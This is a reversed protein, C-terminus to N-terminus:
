RNLNVSCACKFFIIIKFNDHVICRSKIKSTVLLNRLYQMCLNFFFYFININLSTTNEDDLLSTGKEHCSRLLRVWLRAPVSVPVGRVSVLVQETTVVLLLRKTPYVGLPLPIRGLEVIGASYSSGFSPSWIFHTRSIISRIGLWIEVCM